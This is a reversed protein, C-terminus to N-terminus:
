KIVPLLNAGHGKPVVALHASTSSRLFMGMKHYNRSRKLRMRPFLAMFEPPM